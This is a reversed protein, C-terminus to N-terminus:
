RKIESSDVSSSQLHAPLVSQVFRLTEPASGKANARIAGCESMIEPYNKRLWDLVPSRFDRNPINM